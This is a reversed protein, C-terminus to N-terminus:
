DCPGSPNPTGPIRGGRRRLSLELKSWVPSGAMTPPAVKRYARSIEEGKKWSMDKFHRGRRLRRELRKRRNQYRRVSGGMSARIQHTERIEVLIKDKGPTLDLPEAGTRKDYARKMQEQASEYAQSLGQRQMEVEAARQSGSKPQYGMLAMSRSVNGTQGNSFPGFRASNIQLDFKWLHNSWAGKQKKTLSKLWRNLPKMANEAQGNGAPEYPLIKFREVGRKELEADLMHNIFESGNDSSFVEPWGFRRVVSNKLATIVTKARKDRLAATVVHKTMYDVVVLIVRCNNKDSKSLIKLDVGIHQFPRDPIPVPSLPPPVGGGKSHKQCFECTAIAEKIEVMPRKGKYGLDQMRSFTGAVGEHLAGPGGHAIQALTVVEEDLTPFEEARLAGSAARLYGKVGAESSGDMLRNLLAPPPVHGFLDRTGADALNKDTRTWFIDVHRTSVARQWSAVTRDRAESDLLAASITSDVMVIHKAGNAAPSITIEDFKDTVTWKLACIEKKWLEMRSQSGKTWAKSAMGVLVLKSEELDVVSERGDEAKRVVIEHGPSAQFVFAAQAAESADVFFLCQKATDRIAVAKSELFDRKWNEWKDLDDQPWKMRQGSKLQDLKDRFYRRRNELHPIHGNVGSMLAALPKMQGKTEPIRMELMKELTSPNAGEVVMGPTSVDWTSGMFTISKVEAETKERNLFLGAAKFAKLVAALNKRHEQRSGGWILTDDFTSWSFKDCGADELIQKIIQNFAQPLNKLGFPCVKFEYHKGDVTFACWKMSEPDLRLQWYGKWLDLKSLWPDKALTLKRRIKQRLEEKKPIIQAENATRKNVPTLNLCFRWKEGQKIMVIRNNGKSKSRRIVDMELGKQLFSRIAELQEHNQFSVNDMQTTPADPDVGKKFTLKYTFDKISGGRESTGDAYQGMELTQALSKPRSRARGSRAAREKADRVRRAVEPVEEFKRTINRGALWPIANAGTVVFFKSSFEVDTAVDKLSVQCVGM